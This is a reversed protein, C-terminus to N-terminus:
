GGGKKGKLEAEWAAIQDRLHQLKREAQTKEILRKEILAIKKAIKVEEDHAHELLVRLVEEISAM